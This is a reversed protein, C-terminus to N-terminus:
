LAREAPRDPAQATGIPMQRNSRIEVLPAQDDTGTAQLPAQYDDEIAKRLFGAVNRLERQQKLGRVLVMKDRIVEAPYQQALRLAAKPSVHENILERTVADVDTTSLEHEEEPPLKSENPGTASQVRGAVHHALATVLQRAEEDMLPREPVDRGPE